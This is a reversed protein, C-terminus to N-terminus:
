DHMRPVSIRMAEDWPTPPPAACKAPRWYYVSRTHHIPIHAMEKHRQKAYPWLYFDIIASNIQCTQSDREQVLKCLREKILEVSWISCGRIEVERRDGPCLLEGPPPPASPSSLFAWSSINGTQKRAEFLEARVTRWRRWWRTRTACCASTSSPRPSATTQSCPSGTWTSWTEKGEPRWSAGPIRWWSRLESTSHSKRGRSLFCPASVGWMLASRLQHLRAATIQKRLSRAARPFQQFPQWLRQTRWISRLNSSPIDLQDWIDHVELSM